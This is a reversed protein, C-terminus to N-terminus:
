RFLAEGAALSTIPPATNSPLSLAPLRVVKAPIAATIESVVSVLSSPAIANSVVVAPDLEVLTV